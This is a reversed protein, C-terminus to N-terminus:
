FRAWFRCLRPRFRTKGFGKLVSGLVPLASPSLSNKRLGELDLGFGAFGLAFALIEAAQSAAGKLVVAELGFAIARGEESVASPL